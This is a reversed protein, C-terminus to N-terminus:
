RHRNREVVRGLCSLSACYTNQLASRAHGPVVVHGGARERPLVPNRLRVIFSCPTALEMRPFM